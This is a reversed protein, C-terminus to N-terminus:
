GGVKKTASELSVDHKPAEEAEGPTGSSPSQRCRAIGARTALRLHVLGGLGTRTQCRGSRANCPQTQQGRALSFQQSDVLRGNDVRTAGSLCRGVQTHPLFPLLRTHMYYSLSSLGATLIPLSAPTRPIFHNHPSSRLSASSLHPRVTTIDSLVLVFPLHSRARTTSSLLHFPRYHEIDCFWLSM